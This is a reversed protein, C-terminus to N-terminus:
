QELKTTNYMNKIMDVNVGALEEESSPGIWALIQRGKEKNREEITQIADNLDEAEIRGRVIPGTTKIIYIYKPM